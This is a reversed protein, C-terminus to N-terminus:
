NKHSLNNENLATVSPDLRLLSCVSSLARQGREACVTLVELSFSDRVGMSKKQICKWLYLIQLMFSVSSGNLQEKRDFILEAPPPSPWLNSVRSTWDHWRCVSMHARIGSTTKRSFVSSLFHPIDTSDDWQQEACFWALTSKSTFLNTVLIITAKLKIPKM